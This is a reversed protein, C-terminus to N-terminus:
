SFVEKFCGVKRLQKNGIDRRTFVNGESARSTVSLDALFILTYRPRKGSFTVSPRNKVLDTGFAFREWLRTEREQAESSANEGGRTLHAFLLRFSRYPFQSNDSTRFDGLESTETRKEV